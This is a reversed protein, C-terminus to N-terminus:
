QIRRKILVWEEIDPESPITIPTGIVEQEEELLLMDEPAQLIIPINVEIPYLVPLAFAVAFWLLTMGGMGIAVGLAVMRKCASIDSDREEPTMRYISINKENLIDTLLNKMLIKRRM